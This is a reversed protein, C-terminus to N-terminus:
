ILFHIVVDEVVISCIRKMNVSRALKASADCILGVTSGATWDSELSRAARMHMHTIAQNLSQLRDASVNVRFFGLRGAGSGIAWSRCARGINASMRM